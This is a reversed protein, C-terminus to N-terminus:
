MNKFIHLHRRSVTLLEPRDKLKLVGRGTVSRSVSHISKANVIIGRHIQWFMSPDLERALEKIPKNILAEGAKTMVATYKDSAKFFQVEEVPILRTGDGHQTKIWRLHGPRQGAELGKMLREVIGAMNKEPASEGATGTKLREVTKELRETSVPKLLYDVAENEFAEVAYEDYATIFVVRCPGSMAAAVDLGSMGPMRIDLFAIHPHHKEVLELARVGDGAEGCIALDPWARALLSKLYSRLEPEDDAIVAKIEAM